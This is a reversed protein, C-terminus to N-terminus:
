MAPEPVKKRLWNPLLPNKLQSNGKTINLGSPDAVEETAAGLLDSASVSVGSGSGAATIAAFIGENKVQKAVDDRKQKRQEVGAM